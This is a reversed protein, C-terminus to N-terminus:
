KAVSVEGEETAPLGASITRTRTENAVFAQRETRGEGTDVNESGRGGQRNVGQLDTHYAVHIPRYLLTEVVLM